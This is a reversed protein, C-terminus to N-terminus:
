QPVLAFDVAIRVSTEVVPDAGGERGMMRQVMSQMMDVSATEASPRDSLRVIRGVRMNLSRAYAEAEARAHALGQDRAAQRAASDDALSYIPDAIDGAGAAELAARLPEVQARDRVRIELTKRVTKEGETQRGVARAMAENGVFGFPGRAHFESIDDPAVGASRAAAVVRGESRALATRAASTTAASAQLTVMLSVRDAPTRVTGEASTELLVERPGLPSTTVPQAFAGAAGLALALGAIVLRM